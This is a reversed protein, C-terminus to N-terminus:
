SGEILEARLLLRRHGVGRVVREVEEVVGSKAPGDLRRPRFGLWGCWRRGPGIRLAGSVSGCQRDPAFVEIEFAVAAEGAAPGYPCAVVDCRDPEGFLEFLAAACGCGFLL